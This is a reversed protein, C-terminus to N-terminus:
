ETGYRKHFKRFFLTIRREINEARLRRLREAGSVHAAYQKLLQFDSDSIEVRVM